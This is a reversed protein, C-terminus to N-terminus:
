IADLSALAMQAWSWSWSRAEGGWVFIVLLSSMLPNTDKFNRRGHTLCDYKRLYPFLRPYLFGSGLDLVPIHLCFTKTATKSLRKSKFKKYISMHAFFSTEECFNLWFGFIQHQNRITNSVKESEALTKPSSSKKIFKKASKWHIWFWWGIRFVDKYIQRLIRDWISWKSWFFTLITTINVYERNSSTTDWESSHM